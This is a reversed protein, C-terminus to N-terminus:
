DKAPALQFSLQVDRQTQLATAPISACRMLPFRAQLEIRMLLMEVLGIFSIWFYRLPNHLSTLVQKPSFSLLNSIGSNILSFYQPYFFRNNMVVPLGKM